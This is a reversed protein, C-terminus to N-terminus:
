DTSMETSIETYDVPPVDRLRGDYRGGGGSTQQDQGIPGEWVMQQPESTEQPTSATGPTRAAAAMDRLIGIVAVEDPSRLHDPVPPTPDPEAPNGTHIVPKQDPVAPTVQQQSSPGAGAASERARRQEMSLHRVCEDLAMDRYTYDFCHTWDVTAPNTIVTIMSDGLPSVGGLGSSLMVCRVTVQELAMTLSLPYEFRAQSTPRQVDIGVACSGVTVGQPARLPIRPDRSRRFTQLVDFAASGGGLNRGLNVKLQGIARDCDAHQIDRGYVADCAVIASVLPLSTLAYLLLLITTFPPYMYPLSNYAIGLLGKQNRFLLKQHAISLLFIRLFGLTFM